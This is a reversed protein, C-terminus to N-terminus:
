CIGIRLGDNVPVDPFENYLEQMEPKGFFM